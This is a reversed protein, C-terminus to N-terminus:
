YTFEGRVHPHVADLGYYARYRVSSGVCTPTFRRQRYVQWQRGRVGWAHPPSGNPHYSM